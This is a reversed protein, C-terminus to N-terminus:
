RRVWRVIVTGDDGLLVDSRRMHLEVHAPTAAIRRAPGAVMMPSTTLCLEDIEDDAVLHSFLTPGGEVLVRHLGLDGLARRIAASDIRGEAMECVVAGSAELARRASSPASASVLVIPPVTATLLHSPIVGRSSVVVLRLASALGHALRWGLSNADVRLDAYPKSAATTAGVLIVDAVERLRAFVRRDTPTGLKRGAGDLTVAGDISAIFNARLRPATPTEPYALLDRLADDTLTEVEHLASPPRAAVATM